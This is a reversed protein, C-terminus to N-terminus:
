EGKSYKIRKLDLCACVRELGRDGDPVQILMQGVATGDIDKTDAFLINIPVGSELILNAIVPETSEKGDFVIRLKTGDTVNEATHNGPLILERAIDSQPNTFVESVRGVEAIKSKDIVAVRDCISDIVKMEHTIVIITVGMTENIQKLLALISKTTNPDLASTAEDCLLYRPETALARAIAVRQKQGGSLQSPYSKVRDSLGVMEILKEARKKAEAKPVGAIELPYCVNGMVNRQELLNFGQFIMGISRRMWLLEKQPLKMLDKGDVIVQGSTPRELLNICRVLTSKGAGSLGIIGFIEGDEITLNIGDLAVIEGTASHFVKGMDKIEIM